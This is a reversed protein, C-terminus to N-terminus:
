FILLFKLCPMAWCLQCQSARLGRNNLDNLTRNLTEKSKIKHFSAEWFAFPAGWFLYFTIHQILHALTFFKLKTPLCFTKLPLYTANPFFSDLMQLVASFETSGSCEHNKKEITIEKSDYLQPYWPYLTTFFFGLLETFWSSYQFINLM